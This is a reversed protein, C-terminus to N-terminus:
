DRRAEVLRMREFAFEVTADVQNINGAGASSFTVPVVGTLEWRALLEERNDRAIITVGKGAPVGDDTADNLWAQLRNLGKQTVTVVLRREDPSYARDLRRGDSRPVPVRAFTIRYGVVGDIDVGDVLLRFNRERPDPGTAVLTGAVLLLALGLTFARKEMM